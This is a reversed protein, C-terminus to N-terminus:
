RRRREILVGSSHIGRREAMELGIERLERVTLLRAANTFVHAEEEKIHRAYADRLSRLLSTLRISHPAPLFGDALWQRFLEDVTRHTQNAVIHDTHLDDLSSLFGKAEDHQSARLRPFLSEEEDATHKPAAEAFYRLATEIATRQENTLSHGHVETALTLLVDLFRELRRHCDQLLGIPDDFDSDTKEGIKIAV